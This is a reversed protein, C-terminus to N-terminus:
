KNYHKILQQDKESPTLNSNDLKKQFNASISPEMFLSTKVEINITALEWKKIMSDKTIFNKQALGHLSFVTALLLLDYKM